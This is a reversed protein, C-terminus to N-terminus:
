GRRDDSSGVTEYHVSPRKESRILDLAGTETVNIISRLELAAEAETSVGLHFEQWIRDARQLIDM